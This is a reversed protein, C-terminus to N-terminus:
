YAIIVSKQEVSRTNCGRFTFNLYKELRSLNCFAKKMLKGTLSDLRTSHHEVIAFKAKCKLSWISQIKQIAMSSDSLHM